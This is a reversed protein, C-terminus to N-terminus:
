WKGKPCSGSNMRAKLSSNCGCSRCRDQQGDYFECGECIQLRNAVEEDSAVRFGDKAHDVLAKVFNTGMELLTPYDGSCANSCNRKITIPLGRVFYNCCECRIGGDQESFKCLM